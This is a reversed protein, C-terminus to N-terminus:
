SLTNDDASEYVRHENSIKQHDKKILFNNLWVLSIQEDFVYQNSHM